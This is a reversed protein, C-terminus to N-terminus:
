SKSSKLLKEYLEISKDDLKGDVYLKRLQRKMRYNKILEDLVKNEAELSEINETNFRKDFKRDSGTKIVSHRDTRDDRKIDHNTVHQGTGGMIHGTNRPVQGHTLNATSGGSQHHMHPPAIHIPDNSPFAVDEVPENRSQRFSKHSYYLQKITEQDTNLMRTLMSIPKGKVLNEYVISELRLKIANPSRELIDGIEEYSKGASYLKMLEIKDDSGWRKNSM